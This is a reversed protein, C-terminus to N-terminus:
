KGTPERDWYVTVVTKRGPFFPHEWEPQTVTLRDGKLDIARYIEAGIFAPNWAVDIKVMIGAGDRRCRGSFAILRNFLEAHEQDTTPAKRGCPM